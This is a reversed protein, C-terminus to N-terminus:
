SMKTKITDIFPKLKANLIRKDLKVKDKEEWKKEFLTKYGETIGSPTNSFAHWANKRATKDSSVSQVFTINDNKIMNWVPMQDYYGLELQSNNILKLFAITRYILESYHNPDNLIRKGREKAVTSQPNLLLIRIKSRLNKLYEHFVGIRAYDKNRNYRTIFDQNDHAFHMSISEYGTTVLIDLRSSPYEVLTDKITQYNKDIFEETDNNLIYVLGLDQYTKIENDKIEINNRLTKNDVALWIYFFSVGLSIIVAFVFSFAAYQWEISSKIKEVFFVQIDNLLIINIAFLILGAIVNTLVPHALLFKRLKKSLKTITNSIQNEPVM